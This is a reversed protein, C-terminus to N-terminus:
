KVRRLNKRIRFITRILLTLLYLANIFVVQWINLYNMKYSVLLIVQITLIAFLKFHINQRFIVFVAFSALSFCLIYM